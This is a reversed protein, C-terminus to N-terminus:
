ATQLSWDLWAMLGILAVLVVHMVILGQMGITPADEKVKKRAM